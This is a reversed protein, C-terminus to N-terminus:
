KPSNKQVDLSPATPTATVAGKTIDGVKNPQVVQKGNKLPAVQKKLKGNPLLEDKPPPVPGPGPKSPGSEKDEGRRSLRKPEALRNKKANIDKDTPKVEKPAINRTGASQSLTPIPAASKTEAEPAGFATTSVLSLSATFISASIAVYIKPYLKSTNM